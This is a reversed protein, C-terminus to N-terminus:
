RLKLFHKSSSTNKFNYNFIYFQDTTFVILGFNLLKKLSDQLIPEKSIGIALNLRIEEIKLKPADNFLNLISAISLNTLLTIRKTKAAPLPLKMVILHESFCGHLKQERTSYEEVQKDWSNKFHKNPWIPEQERSLNFKEAIQSKLFLKEFIPGDSDTTKSEVPLNAIWNITGRHELLRGSFSECINDFIQRELCGEHKYFSQFRPGLVILQALLVNRLVLNMFQVLSPLYCILFTSVADVWEVESVSIKQLPNRRIVDYNGHFRDSLYGLLQVHLDNLDYFGKEFERRFRKRDPFSEWRFNDVLSVKKLLLDFNHKWRFVKNACFRAILTDFKHDESSSEDFTSYDPVLTCNTLSEPIKESLKKGFLQSAPSELLIDSGYKKLFEETKKWIVYIKGFDNEQEKIRKKSRCVLDGDFGILLGHEDKGTTRIYYQICELICIGDHLCDKGEFIYDNCCSKLYTPLDHIVPNLLSKKSAEFWWEDIHNKLYQMRTFIGNYLSVYDRYNRIPVNNLGSRNIEDFLLKGLPETDVDGSHDNVCKALSALEQATRRWQLKRDSDFYQRLITEYRTVLTRIEPSM